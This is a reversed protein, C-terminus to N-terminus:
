WPPPNFRALDLYNLHGFGCNRTQRLSLSKTWKEVLSAKKLVKINAAIFLTGSGFIYNFFQEIKPKVEALFRPSVPISVYFTM